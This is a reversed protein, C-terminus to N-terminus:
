DQGEYYLWRYNEPSKVLGAKVPNYVVYNMIEQFDKDNRILRDYYEDQWFTGRSNMEKQVKKSSYSKISHMIRAVSFYSSNSCEIPQLVMHVHTSMVVCSYLRYLSDAHYKISLFTISKGADTLIHQGFTRFTIFYVGGPDNWHPLHRSHIQFEDIM